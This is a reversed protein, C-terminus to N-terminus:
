MAVQHLAEDKAAILAPTWSYITVKGTSNRTKHRQVHIGDEKFHRAPELRLLDGQAIGTLLKLKIYAQVVAIGGESKKAPLSLCEVIEWDEVYRVRPKEGELRVEGKFPHKDILGWEVAKTYSAVIHNLLRVCIYLYYISDISVLKSFVSVREFSNCTVSHSLHM